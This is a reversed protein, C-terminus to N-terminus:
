HQGSSTNEFLKQMGKAMSLRSSMSPYADILTSAPMTAALKRYFSVMDRPSWGANHALIMGLHDAESEQRTSLASLRLQLSFDADLQAMLVEPPINKRGSIRLVESLEERHHEAVAHSVEHAILMALEGDNLKLRNVFTSGVVLKGGAMCFADVNPDSTTHVEWAWKKISPKLVAAADILTKSITRVRRNLQADDDLQHKASFGALMDDYRDKTLRNVETSSFAVDEWRGTAPVEIVEAMVTQCLFALGLGYLWTVRM